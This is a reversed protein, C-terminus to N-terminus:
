EHEQAGKAAPAQPEKWGILKKFHDILKRKNVLRGAWYGCEDCADFAFNRDDVQFKVVTWHDPLGGTTKELADGCVECTYITVKSM